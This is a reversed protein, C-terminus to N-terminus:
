KKRKRLIGGAYNFIESKLMTFKGLVEEVLKELERHKNGYQQDEPLTDCEIIGGLEREHIHIQQELDKLENESRELGGLYVQLREFLNPTTPEFIYSNLLKRIFNLEERAFQVTSIWKLSDRHLEEISYGNVTDTGKQM